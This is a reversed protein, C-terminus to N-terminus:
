VDLLLATYEHPHVLTKSDTDSIYDYDDQGKCLYENNAMWKAKQDVDSHGCIKQGDETYVFM